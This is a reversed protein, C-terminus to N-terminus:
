SVQSIRLADSVPTGPTTSPRHRFSLLLSSLLGVGLPLLVVPSPIPVGALALGMGCLSVGAGLNLPQQNCLRQSLLGLYVGSLSLAFGAALAILLAPVLTPDVDLTYSVASGALRDAFLPWLLMLRMTSQFGFGEAIRRLMPIGSLSFGLGILFISTFPTLLMQPILSTFLSRALSIGFAALGILLYVLVLKTVRKLPSGQLQTAVILCGAGSFATLGFTAAKVYDQWADSALFGLYYGDILPLGALTALKAVDATLIQRRSYGSVEDKM